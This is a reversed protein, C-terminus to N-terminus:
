MIEITDIRDWGELEIPMEFNDNKIKIKEEPVGETRDSNRKICEKYPTEMVVCVKQCDIHKIQELFEMRYHRYVNTADYITSKGAKLDEIVRQHLIEFVHKDEKKNYKGDFKEKRIDDSSHISCSYQDSLLNAYDTKGSGPIGVMMILLTEM